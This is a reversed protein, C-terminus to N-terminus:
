RIAAPGKIIELRAIDFAALYQWLDGDDGPAVDGPLFRKGDVVVLPNVLPM